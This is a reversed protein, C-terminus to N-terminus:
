SVPPATMLDSETLARVRASARRILCSVQMQSCSLERAIEVQKMESGTRLTAARRELNPLQTIAATLSLEANVLGFQDDEDGLRGGLTQPGDTDVGAIPADLSAAFHASSTEFGDLVDDVAM